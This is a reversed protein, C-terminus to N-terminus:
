TAFIFTAVTTTKICAMKTVHNVPVTYGMSPQNIKLEFRIRRYKRSHILPVLRM